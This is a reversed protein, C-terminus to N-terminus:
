RHARPASCRRETDPLKRAFKARVASAAFKSAASRRGASVCDVAWGDVCLIPFFCVIALARSLSQGGCATPPQECLPTLCARVLLRSWMSLCAKTVPRLAAKTTLGCRTPVPSAVKPGATTRWRLSTTSWYPDRHYSSEAKEVLAVAIPM